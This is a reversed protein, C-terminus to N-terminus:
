NSLIFPANRYLIVYENFDRLTAKIRKLERKRTMFISPWPGEPPTPDPDDADRLSCYRSLDQKGALGKGDFTFIPLMMCHFGHREVM